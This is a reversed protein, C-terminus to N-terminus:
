DYHDPILVVRDPDFVETAGTREFQEIALPATVDNAMVLDVPVFYFEGPSVLDRGVHAAIIKEAITMGM